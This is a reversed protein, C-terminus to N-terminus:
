KANMQPSLLLKVMCLGGGTSIAGALGYDQAEGKGQFYGM